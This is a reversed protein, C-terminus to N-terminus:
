PHYMVVRVVYGGDNNSELFTSISKRDLEDFDTAKIFVVKRTQTNPCDPTYYVFKEGLIARLNTTLAEFAVRADPFDQVWKQMMLQQTGMSDIAACEFGPLIDTCYFQAAENFQTYMKAFSQRFLKSRVPEHRVIGHYLTGKGGKLMLQVTYNNTANRLVNVLINYGTFCGNKVETIATQQVISPNSPLSDKLKVITRQQLALSINKTLQQMQAEAEELQAFSDFTYQCYGSSDKVVKGSRSGPLMPKLKFGEKQHRSKVKAFNTSAQKYVKLFTKSFKDKPIPLSGGPQGNTQHHVLLTLVLFLVIRSSRIM